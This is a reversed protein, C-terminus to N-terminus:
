NKYESYVDRIFKNNKYITYPKTYKLFIMKEAGVLRPEYPKLKKQLCSFYKILLIHLKKLLEDDNIFKDNLVKIEDFKKENNVWAISGEYDNFREMMDFEEIIEFRIDVYNRYVNPTSFLTCNYLTCILFEGYLEIEISDNNLLEILEKKLRDKYPKVIRHLKKLNFRKLTM